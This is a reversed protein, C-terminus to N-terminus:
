SAIKAFTAEKPQDQYKSKDNYPNKVPASLEEFIIQAIGENAYIKVPVYNYNVILISLHGKWGPEIPQIYVNVNCRSYTSKGWARGVIDRPMTLHENIVGLMSSLEPLLYYEEGSASLVVQLPMAFRDSDFAKPDIIANKGYHGWVYHYEVAGENSLTLDYGCQSTGYSIVGKSVKEPYFPKILREGQEIIWEDNKIM